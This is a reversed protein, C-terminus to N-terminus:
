NKYMEKGLRDRRWVWLWFGGSLGVALVMLTTLVGKPARGSQQRIASVRDGFAPLLKSEAVTLFRNTVPYAFDILQGDTHSRFDGVVCIGEPIVELPFPDFRTAVGTTELTYRRNVEPQSSPRWPVPLQSISLEARHTIQLGDYSGGDLVRFLVNTFGDDHPSPLRRPLRVIELGEQVKEWGDDM